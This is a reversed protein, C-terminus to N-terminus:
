VYDEAQEHESYDPPRVVPKEQKKTKKTKKQLITIGKTMTLIDSHNIISSVIKM